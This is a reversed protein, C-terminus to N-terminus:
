RTDPGYEVVIDQRDAPSDRVIDSRDDPSNDYYRRIQVGPITDFYRMTTRPFPARPANGFGPVDRLTRGISTTCLANPVAGNSTVRALAIEAQEPTVVVDHRIVRYTERAHYDIFFDVKGDDIGYFTDGRQPLNPHTFTGAPNFIVRQSGSVMLASHAGENSRNNIMTFLTITPPGDDRFRARAVEEDSAYPGSGACAGLLLPLCLALLFARM